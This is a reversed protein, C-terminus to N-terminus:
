VEEGHKDAYVGMTVLAVIDLWQWFDDNEPKFEGIQCVKMNALITYVAQDRTM